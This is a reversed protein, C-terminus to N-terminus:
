PAVEQRSKLQKITELFMELLVPQEQLPAVAKHATAFTLGEFTRRAWKRGEHDASIRYAGQSLGCVAWSQGTWELFIVVEHGPDFRPMGPIALTLGDATGGPLRLVFQSGPNDGKLVRHVDFTVDTVIRPAGTTGLNFQQVSAVTGWFVLGSDRALDEIAAYRVTAADAASTVLLALLPALLFARM